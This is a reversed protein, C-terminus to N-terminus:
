TVLLLHVVILTVIPVGQLPSHCIVNNSSKLGSRSHSIPKSIPLVAHRNARVLAEEDNGTIALDFYQIIFSM